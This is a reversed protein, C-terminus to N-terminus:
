QNVGDQELSHSDDKQLIKNLNLSQIYMHKVLELGPQVMIIEHWSWVDTEAEDVCWRVFTETFISVM